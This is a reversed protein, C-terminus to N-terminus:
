LGVDEKSYDATLWREPRMHILIMADGARDDAASEMYRDGAETGLYRHALPREHREADSPEIRVVPGEVSAYKYPPAEDQVCLSIRRGEELLKGKRSDRETVVQVDGGPEYAYWVPITLPGRGEQNLSVVGVHVGALFAQREDSTMTTSM